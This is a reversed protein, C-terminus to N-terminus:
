LELDAWGNDLIDALEDSLTDNFSAVVSSAGGVADDVADGIARCAQAQADAIAATILDTSFSTLLGALDPIAISLDFSNFIDANICSEPGSFSEEPDAALETILEIERDLAAQAAEEVLCDQAFAGTAFFLLSGFSLILTRLKKM